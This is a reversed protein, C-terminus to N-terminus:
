KFLFNETNFEKPYIGITTMISRFFTIYLLEGSRGACKVYGICHKYIIKFSKDDDDTYAVRYNKVRTFFPHM